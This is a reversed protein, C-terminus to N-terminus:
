RSFMALANIFTSNIPDSSWGSTFTFPRSKIDVTGGSLGTLAATLTINSSGVSSDPV